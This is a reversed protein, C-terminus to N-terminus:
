PFMPDVPIRLTASLGRHDSGALDVTRASSADGRLTLIHDISILPPLWGGEPFTPSRGAGTQEVADRYGTGLLARFAAMDYTSNFDGAVIVARAGAESSLRELYSATYDVANRWKVTPDPWPAPVHIAAVAPDHIVHPVDLEADVHYVDHDNGADGGSLPFRSWLGVGSSGELPMLLRYPFVEDMGAATLRQVIEPTVETAAVVDASEAAQAALAEADARGKMVNVTLVRVDASDGEPVAEGLLLPLQVAAMVVALAVAIGAMAWRRWGLFLMASFVAAVFFYPEFVAGVLVAHNVIPLYRCALSAAAVVLAVLAVVSCVARLFRFLKM